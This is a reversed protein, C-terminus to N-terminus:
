YVCGSYPWQMRQMPTSTGSTNANSGDFAPLLLSSTTPRKKSITGLDIVNGNSMSSSVNSTSSNHPHTKRRAANFGTLSEITRSVRGSSKAWLSGFTDLGGEEETSRGDSRENASKMSGRRSFSPRWPEDSDSGISGFAKRKPITGGDSLVGREERTRQRERVMDDFKKRAKIVEDVCGLWVARLSGVVGHVPSQRKHKKPRVKAKVKATAKSLGDDSGDSEDEKKVEADEGVVLSVFEKLDTMPVLIGAAGHASSLSSGSLALHLPLHTLAPVRNPINLSLSDRSERVRDDDKDKGKDRRRAVRRADGSTRSVYVSFINEVLSHTLHSSTEPEAMSVRTPSPISGINPPTPVSLSLSAAPSRSPSPGPSPFKFNYPIGGPSSAITPLSSATDTHNDRLFTPISPSQLSLRPSHSLNSQNLGNQVIPQLGSSSYHAVNRLFVQPYL